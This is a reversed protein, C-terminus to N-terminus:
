WFLSMDEESPTPQNRRPVVSMYKSITNISHSGSLYHKIKRLTCFDIVLWTPLSFVGAPLLTTKKEKGGGRGEGLRKEEKSSFNGNGREKDGQECSSLISTRCPGGM